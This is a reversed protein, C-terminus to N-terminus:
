QAVTGQAAALPHQRIEAALGDKGVEIALPVLAAPNKAMIAAIITTVVEPHQRIGLIIIEGAYHGIWKAIRGTKKVADSAHSM